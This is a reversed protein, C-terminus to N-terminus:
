TTAYAQYTAGCVGGRTLAVGRDRAVWIGIRGRPPVGRAAHLAMLRATVYRIRRRALRRATTYRGHHRHISAAVRDLQWRFGAVADQRRDNTSTIVIPLDIGLWEIRYEGGGPVFRSVAFRGTGLEYTLGNAPLNARPTNTVDAATVGVASFAAALDGAGPSARGAELATAMATDFVRRAQEQAATGVLVNAPCVAALPARVALETRGVGADDHLTVVKSCTRGRVLV